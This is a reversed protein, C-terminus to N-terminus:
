VFLTEDIQIPSCGGKSPDDSAFAALFAKQSNPFPARQENICTTRFNGDHFLCKGDITKVRRVIRWTCSGDGPRATDNCQGAVPLSYWEGTLPNSGCQREISSDVGMYYAADHGVLFHEAGMCQPPSYGNCNQYQGWRPMLEIEWQTLWAYNHDTASSQNSIVDLCVFVTDGVADGLDQGAIDFQHAPHFVYMSINIPTLGQPPLPCEQPHTYETKNFGDWVSLTSNPYFTVFKNTTEYKQGRFTGNQVLRVPTGENDVLLEMYAKTVIINLNLYWRHVQRGEFSANGGYSAHRLWGFMDHYAAGPGEYAYKNDNISFGLFDMNVFQSTNFWERPTGVWAAPAVDFKISQITVYRKKETEQAIKYRNGNNGFPNIQEKGNIMTSMDVDAVWDMPMVPPKKKPWPWPWSSEKQELDHSAMFATAQASLDRSATSVFMQDQLFSELTAEAMLAWGILAVLRVM